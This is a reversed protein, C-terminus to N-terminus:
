GGVLGSDGWGGEKGGEGADADLLGNRALDLALPM